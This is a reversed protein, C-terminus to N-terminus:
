VAKEIRSLLKEVKQNHPNLSHVFHLRRIIDNIKISDPSTQYILFQINALNLNTDEHFPNLVLSKRYAAVAELYDNKAEHILGMNNWADANDPDLQLVNQFQELSASYNGLQFNIRGM